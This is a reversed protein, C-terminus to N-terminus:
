IEATKHDCLGIRKRTPMHIGFSFYANLHYVVIDDTVLVPCVYSLDFIFTLLFM